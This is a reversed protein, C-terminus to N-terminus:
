VTKATKLNYSSNKVSVNELVRSFIGHIKSEYNNSIAVLKIISVEYATKEIIEGNDLKKNYKRSQVRGVIEVADGVILKSAIQANTSWAICPLYDSKKHGRNVAILLDSIERGFPTVRYIPEKCIFGSLMILNSDKEEVSSPEIESLAYVVLELKNKGTETPTNKSRFQGIIAITDGESKNEVMFSPFNVPIIDNEGSLRPVVLNIQYYTGYPENKEIRESSLTGKLITQNSSSKYIM